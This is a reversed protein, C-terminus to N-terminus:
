RVSTPAEKLMDCHLKARRRCASGVTDMAVSRIVMSADSFLQHMSAWIELADQQPLSLSFQEVSQQLFFLLSQDSLIDDLKYQASFDSKIAESSPSWLGSLM